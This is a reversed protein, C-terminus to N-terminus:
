KRGLVLEYLAVKFFSYWIIKHAKALPIHLRLLYLSKLYDLCALQVCLRDKFSRISTQNSASGPIEFHKMIGNHDSKVSFIVSHSFFVVLLYCCMMVVCCKRSMIHM